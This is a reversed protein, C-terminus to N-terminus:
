AREDVSPSDIHRSGDPEDSYTVEKLESFQKKKLIANIENFALQIHGCLIYCLASIKWDPLSSSKIFPIYSSLDCCYGNSMADRLYWIAKELDQTIDDKDGARWIYKFANGLDFSMQRTFLICELDAFVGMYHKPHNVNDNMM